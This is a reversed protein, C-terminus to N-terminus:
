EESGAPGQGSVAAMRARQQGPAGSRAQARMEMREGKTTMIKRGNYHGCGKCVQHSLNPEDCNKCLGVPEPKLGKNAARSGIRARSTKRKPVPM